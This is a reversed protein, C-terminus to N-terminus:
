EIFDIDFHIAACDKIHDITDVLKYVISSHMAKKMCSRLERILKQYM